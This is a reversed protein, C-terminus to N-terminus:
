RGPAADRRTGAHGGASATKWIRSRRGVGRVAPVGSGLARRVSGVLPRKTWNRRQACMPVIRRTIRRGTQMIANATSMDAQVVEEDGIPPDAVVGDVASAVGGGDLRVEADPASVGPELGLGVLEGVEDASVKSSTGVASPVSFAIKIASPETTAPPNVPAV